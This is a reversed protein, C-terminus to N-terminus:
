HLASMATWRAWPIAWDYVDGDDASLPVSTGTIEVPDGFVATDYYAEASTTSLNICGHTVNRRGQASTSAPNAHIFEGNNSIRVAWKEPVNEYGFDPNSMLQVPTKGMVIHIGSRTVRRADSTAGYSAPLDMVTVGNRIVRIRHTSADARVIQARGITFSSSLDARGYGATGLDVGYLHAVFLVKTNPPWYARPRWHVRSGQATDPLWAWSGVVPTSTTVQLTREAVARDAAPIRRNFQVVIPAAVGVTAGDGIATSASVTRTPIVTAFGGGVPVSGGPGTATGAFRYTEAFKTPASATWGAGDPSLVGPVATGGSDTLTVGSLRAHTATVEVPAAPAVGTTGDVPGTSVAPLAAVVPPAVEATPAATARAPEAVAPASCGAVLALGGLTLALLATRRM